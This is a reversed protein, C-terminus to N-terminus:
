LVDIAEQLSLIAYTEPTDAFTQVRVLDLFITDDRLDLSTKILALDSLPM